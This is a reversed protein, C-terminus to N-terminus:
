GLARAGRLATRGLLVATLGLAAVGAMTLVGLAALQEWQGGQYLSWIRVGLVETGPAYLVLSLSVDTLAVAFVSLWGALLSAGALPVIVRVFAPWWRIGSVRAADELEVGVRALGAGGFRAAYPLYRALYGLVLAAATGYLAFPLRVLVALLAVGLVLGPVAVPLFALGDLLFRGRSSARLAVWAVVAALVCAFLAALGADVVSNGLAELVRGDALVTTYANFSMRGISAQSVPALFPQTSMWVLALLPLVVALAVYGGVAALVPLRWRGLEVRRREHGRGSVVAWVRRRRLLAVLVLTGLATLVLLPVSAAAAEALGDGGTGLLLWVRSTFVWTREPTGLLAPVEFSGFCRLTLLVAAAAIAPRLLPLTVHSLVKLRGAGAMVAAEELAPDGARLAGGVLLLALPALRLGEVLIMGGLGFVSPVGPVGALAGSSPAALFIWAITQLVGPLLLPSVILVFLTRRGPLDTGALAVALCTGLTLGVGVSGLAFAATTLTVQMLPVDAFAAGYAAVSLSGAPTLSRWVLLALPLLVLLALLAAALWIM